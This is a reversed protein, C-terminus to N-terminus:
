ESYAYANWIEECKRINFNLRALRSVVEKRDVWQPYKQLTELLVAVEDKFENNVLSKYRQLTNEKGEQHSICSHMIALDKVKEFIKKLRYHYANFLTPKHLRHFDYTNFASEHYDHIIFEEEDNEVPIMRIPGLDNLMSVRIFENRDKIEDETLGFDPDNKRIVKLGARVPLDEEDVWRDIQLNIQRQNM